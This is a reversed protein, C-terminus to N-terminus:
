KSGAKDNSYGFSSNVSGNSIGNNYEAQMAAKAEAGSAHESKNSVSSIELKAGFTAGCMYYPGYDDLMTRAEEINNVDSLDEKFDASFLPKLRKLRGPLTYSAVSGIQQHAVCGCTTTSRVSRKYM